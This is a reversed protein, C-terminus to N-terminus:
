PPILLLFGWPGCINQNVEGVLLPSVQEVDRVDPEAPPEDVPHREPNTYGCPAPKAARWCRLLGVKAQITQIFRQPDASRQDEVGVLTRLEGAQRQFAGGFVCAALSAWFLIHRLALMRM